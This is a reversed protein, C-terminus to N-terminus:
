KCMKGSGSKTDDKANNVKTENASIDKRQRLLTKYSNPLCNAIEVHSLFIYSFLCVAITANIRVNEGMSFKPRKSASM